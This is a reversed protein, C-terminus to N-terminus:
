EWVSLLQAELKWRYVSLPPKLNMEMKVEKENGPFTYLYICTHHVIHWKLCKEIHRECLRDSQLSMVSIPNSPPSPAHWNELAWYICHQICQLSSFVVSLCSDSLCIFHILIQGKDYSQAYICPRCKTKKTSHIRFIWTWSPCGRKRTFLCALSLNPPSM